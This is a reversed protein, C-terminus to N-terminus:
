FELEANQPPAMGGAMATHALAARAASIDGCHPSIYLTERGRNQAGRSKETAARTTTGAARATNDYGGATRWHHATWGADLLRTYEEYGAVVIRYRPNDGRALCWTEVAPAIATSDHHYIGAERDAAGYPPDFFMGATGMNDQWNGGCIRTWDGCVVRVRRLRASLRAFWDYIAPTTATTTSVSPGKAHVGKGANAIDPRKGKAHVGMGANGIHPIQGPRTLGSGIWCSASWIWYGALEPDHWKDDRCLNELLYNEERILRAKRAILDAHNVPWDCRRATEDPAFQIARWVNAIFGDRDNVTETMDPTWGPRQLLVAGSGFFPEIYHAPQGLATWVIPAIAAKGGFYPFPAKLRAQPAISNNRPTQKEKLKM